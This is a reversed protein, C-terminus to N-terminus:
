SWLMRMTRPSIIPWVGVFTYACGRRGASRRHGSRGDRGEGAAPGGSFDHGSKQRHHNRRENGACVRWGRHVLGDCVRNARHGRRVHAGSQLCIRGFHERDPFVEDQSPLHAGGSDVLYICPLRNELAIEQARLHNVKQRHAPLLHRREGHCRQRHDRLCNGSVTGVGTIIGASPVPEDYVEHAALTSLELFPTDRDLLAAVRERPLMKGRGSHRKRAADDGGRQAAQTLQELQGVRERMADQSAAFEASSTKLKSKIVPM